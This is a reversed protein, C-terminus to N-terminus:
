SSKRSSLGLFDLQWRIDEMSLPYDTGGKPYILEKPPVKAMEQQIRFATRMSLGAAWCIAIVPKPARMALISRVNEQSIKLLVAFGWEVFEKDRMSLADAFASDDLKGTKLLEMVHEYVDPYKERGETFALRRKVTQTIEDMDESSFDTRELLVNRVTQEAFGVLEQVIELPINKRMAVPKQWEPYHRSKEVIEKLTDLLIDAGPNDILIAGAPVDDAAIVAQSVPANIAPRSAIAQVAWSAPHSKLIDLLDEDSLAVCCRLIPESVDREIDRALQNAVSPPTDTMDKLTSSLALRIKLVNDLALNGLAEVAYKYLQGQRDKSLDPLLTVLRRALALRVDDNQDKSLVMSAQVPLSTNHAVAQRVSAETDSQAMYFLIEKNTNPNAALKLRDKSEGSVAVAKEREYKDQPDKIGFLSKWFSMAALNANIM